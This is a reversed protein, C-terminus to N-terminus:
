IRIYEYINMYAYIFIHIYPPSVYDCPILVKSDRDGSHRRMVASGSNEAKAMAGVRLVM